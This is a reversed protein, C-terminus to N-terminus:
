KNGSHFKPKFQNMIIAFEVFLHLNEEANKLLSNATSCPKMESSHPLKYVGDKEVLINATLM